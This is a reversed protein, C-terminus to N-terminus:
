KKLGRLILLNLGLVIFLVAFFSAILSLALNTKINMYSLIAVAIGAVIVGISSAIIKTKQNM